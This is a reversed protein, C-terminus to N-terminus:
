EPGAYTVGEAAIRVIVVDEDPSPILVMEFVQNGSEGDGPLVRADLIEADRISELPRGTSLASVQQFDLQVTAMNDEHLSHGALANMCVEMELILSSVSPVHRIRLLIADHLSVVQSLESLRM